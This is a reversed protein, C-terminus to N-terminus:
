ASSESASVSALKTMVPSPRMMSTCPVASFVGNECSSNRASISSARLPTARSTSKCFIATAYDSRHQSVHVTSDGALEHDRGVIGALEGLHPFQQRRMADLRNGRAFEAEALGLFGALRKAGIRRDLRDRRRLGRLQRGKGVIGAEHDIRQVARGADVRRAPGSSPLSKMAAILASRAGAAPARRWWAPGACPANRKRATRRRARRDGRLPRPARRRFKPRAAARCRRNRSHDPTGARRARASRRRSSRRDLFVAQRREAEAQRVAGAGEDFQRLDTKALASRWFGEADVHVPREAQRFARIAIEVAMDAVRRDVLFAKGAGKRALDFGRRRARRAAVTVEIKRPPPVGDSICGCVTPAM